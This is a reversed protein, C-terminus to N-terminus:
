TEISLVFFLFLSYLFFFTLRMTFAGYDGVLLPRKSFRYSIRLPVVYNYLSDVGYLGDLGKINLCPLARLLSGCAFSVEGCECSSGSCTRVGFHLSFVCDRCVSDFQFCMQKRERGDFYCQLM